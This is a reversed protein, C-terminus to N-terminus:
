CRPSSSPRPAGDGSPRRRRLAPGRHPRDAGHRRAQRGQPRRLGPRGRRARPRPRRAARASVTHLASVVRVGEPVMEQPRSPPRARGARRAHADGQRSVAAALPVTADVLLQGERLADKLNTLTESQNRFPCPCSWSRPRQRAAEANECGEFSREPVAARAAGRRRRAGPRRRALRHRRARRRPAWGCRWASASRAPPASSRCPRSGRVARGAPIHNRRWAVRPCSRAPSRRRRRCRPPSRRRRAASPARTATASRSALRGRSTAPSISPSATSISTASVADTRAPTARSALREARDVHEDVVGAGIAEREEDVGVLLQPVEHERDVQAAHQGHVWATSPPM